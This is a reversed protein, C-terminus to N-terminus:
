DWSNIDSAVGEGGPSGDEGYSILDYPGKEGPRRYVWENDWPDKLSSQKVYPGGWFEASGPQEVLETLSEPLRGVDLAFADINQQLLAIQSKAAKHRAGTLRGWVNPLVLSALLGLIVLVVLLELLSFGHQRGGQRRARNPMDNRM